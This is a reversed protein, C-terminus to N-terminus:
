NIQDLSARELKGERYDVCGRAFPDRRVLSMQKEFVDFPPIINRQGHVDLVTPFSTEDDYTERKCGRYSGLGDEQPYLCSM